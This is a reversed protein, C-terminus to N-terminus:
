YKCWPAARVIRLQDGLSVGRPAGPPGPRTCYEQPRPYGPFFFGPVCSDTPVRKKVNAYRCRNVVNSGIVDSSKVYEGNCRSRIANNVCVDGPHMCEHTEKACRGCFPVPGLGHFEQDRYLFDPAPLGTCNKKGYTRRRLADHCALPNAMTSRYETAESPELSNPETHPRRPCLPMRPPPPPKPCSM